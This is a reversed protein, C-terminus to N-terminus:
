THILDCCMIGAPLMCLEAVLVLHPPTKIHQYACTGQAASTNPRLNKSSAGPVPASILCPSLTMTLPRLAPVLLAQRSWACLMLLVGLSQLM